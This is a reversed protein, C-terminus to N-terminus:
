LGETYRGVLWRALGRAGRKGALERQRIAGNRETLARARDLETAAGLRQAYPELRDLLETLLERVPRRLGSHLDAHLGDLGHRCASWRNEAIRWDPVPGRRHGRESLFAVLSHIVAAVASAEDVTSQADPVRVELTGFRVHPRLEWWWAGPDPVSGAAAGWRLEEALAELSPLAPPVGQRPLLESLKPRVSALGTDRGEYFPANAALAALLPLYERLANYVEITSETSGVAVHVQLACVLQRRAVAGYEGVTHEYRPASNLTGSGHSFPHCGAAAPCALGEAAAAVARRSAALEAM